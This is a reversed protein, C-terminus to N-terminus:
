RISIDHSNLLREDNKKKKRNWLWREASDSQWLARILHLNGDLISGIQNLVPIKIRYRVTLWALLAVAEATFLGVHLTTLTANSFDIDAFGISAWRALMAVFTGLLVLGFTLTFTSFGM